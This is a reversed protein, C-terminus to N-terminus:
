RAANPGSSLFCPEERPLGYRTATAAYGSESSPPYHVVTEFSHERNVSRRALHPVGELPVVRVIGGSPPQRPELGGPFLDLDIGSAIQAHALVRERTCAGLDGDGEFRGLRARFDRDHLGTETRDEVLHQVRELDAPAM